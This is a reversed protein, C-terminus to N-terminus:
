VCTYFMSLHISQRLSYEHDPGLETWASLPNSQIIRESRAFAAYLKMEHVLIVFGFLSEVVKNGTM